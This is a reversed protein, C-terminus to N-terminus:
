VDGFCFPPMKLAAILEPDRYSNNIIALLAKMRKIETTEYYGASGDFYVPIGNAGLISAM